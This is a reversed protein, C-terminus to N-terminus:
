DVEGNLSYPYVAALAAAVPPGAMAAAVASCIWVAAIIAVFIMTSVKRWAHISKLKKDLKNKPLKLKELMLTQQMYVSQFIQFYEKTFPDGIEKFKNLEELTRSYRNGGIETEEEFQQLSVLIFSQSARAREQNMELLCKIAEKLSRLSPSTLM